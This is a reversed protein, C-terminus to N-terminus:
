RSSRDHIDDFPATNRKACEHIQDNTQYNGQTGSVPDGTEHLEDVEEESQKEPREYQKTNVEM